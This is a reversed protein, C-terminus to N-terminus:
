SVKLILSEVTIGPGFAMGLVRDNRKLDNNDLIKKLVFLITPSSMNGFDHLVQYSARLQEKPIELKEAAADLIKKGGPHIAYHEISFHETSVHSTLNKVMGKIEMGLLEPIYSSLRMEFGLNGISWAMHAAGSALIDSYFGEIGLSINLGPKPEVLVAAAGDGFLANALINDDTFDKQFHLSCLETCVILVKAHPSTKCFADAAKIASVAAFCGMFNICTRSVSSKLPLRNVLDVDLGPAYMGTCSVTILHTVDEFKFSTKSQCDRVASVSLEAAHERFTQMRTATDPFPEMGSTNPFFTFDGPRGYDALVTYRTAIASARFITKIKRVEEESKALREMFGAIVSQELKYAPVATGISNIYSVCHM